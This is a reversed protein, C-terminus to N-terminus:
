YGWQMVKMIVVIILPLPIVWFYSIKKGNKAFSALMFGILFSPLLYFVHKINDIIMRSSINEIPYNMASLFIVITILM